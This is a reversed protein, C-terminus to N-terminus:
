NGEIGGEFQALGQQFRSPNFGQTLSCAEFLIPTRRLSRRKIGSRHILLLYDAPKKSLAVSL